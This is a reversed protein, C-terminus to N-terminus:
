FRVSSRARKGGVLNSLGANIGLSGILFSSFVFVRMFFYFFFFSASVFHREDPLQESIIPASSM